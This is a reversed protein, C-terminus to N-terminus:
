HDYKLLWSKIQDRNRCALPRRVHGRPRLVPRQPGRGPHGAGGASLAVTGDGGDGGGDDFTFGQAQGGPQGAPTYTGTIAESLEAAEEDFGDDDYKSM